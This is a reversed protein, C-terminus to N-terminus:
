FLEKILSNVTARAQKCDNLTKKDCSLCADIEGVLPSLKAKYEGPLKQVREAFDLYTQRRDELVLNCQRASEEGSSDRFGQLDRGNQELKQAITVLATVENKAATIKNKEKIRENAENNAPPKRGGCSVIVFITLTLIYFKM